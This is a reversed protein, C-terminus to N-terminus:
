VSFGACNSLSPISLSRASSFWTLIQNPTVTPRARPHARCRHRRLRPPPPPSSAAAETSAPFSTLDHSKWRLRKLRATKIARGPVTTGRTGETRFRAPMLARVLMHPTEHARTSTYM